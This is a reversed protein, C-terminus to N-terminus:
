WLSVSTQKRSRIGGEHRDEIAEKERSGGESIRVDNKLDKKMKIVAVRQPRYLFKVLIPSPSGDERRAVSRHANEITPRFKLDNNIMETVKGICDEGATEPINYFRLNFDRSYRELSVLREYTSSVDKSLKKLDGEIRDIRCNAVHIDFTAKDTSDRIESKNSSVDNKLQQLDNQIKAQSEKIEKVDRCLTSLTSRVYTEFEDEELKKM